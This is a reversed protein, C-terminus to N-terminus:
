SVDHMLKPLLLSRMLCNKWTIIMIVVIYLLADSKTHNNAQGQFLGLSICMFVYM